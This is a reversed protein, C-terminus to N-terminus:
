AVRGVWELRPEGRVWRELREGFTLPVRVWRGAGGADPAIITGSESAASMDDWYWFSGGADQTYDMHRPPTWIKKVPMLVDSGIFAPAVGAALVGGLGKLFERRNM